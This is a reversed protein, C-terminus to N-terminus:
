SKHRKPAKKAVRKSISSFAQNSGATNAATVLLRIRRGVDTTALKYSARTALRIAACKTGTAPCRQWQYSFTMPTTGSWAGPNARLTQGRALVGTFSPLTRVTPPTAPPPPPTGAQIVATPASAVTASGASNKATVAVVLTGGADVSQIVYSQSTAGAITSCSGGGANCRRWEYTFTLPTSGTWTGNTAFLVSGSTTTGSISPRFTNVPATGALVATPDSTATATGFSNTATVAVRLRSGIDLSSPTYTFSTAGAIDSCNAGNSDCRRWQYRYTITQSGTWVGTTASYYSVSGDAAFNTAIAPSSTNVPKTSAVVPTTNSEKTASGLSNTATVLVRLTSGVDENAPVYVNATAGSINACSAASGSSDCKQWQYTFVPNSGSWTGTSATLTNGVVVDGSITPPTVNKPPAATIM